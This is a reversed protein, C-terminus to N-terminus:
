PALNDALLMVKLYHQIKISKRDKEEAGVKRQAQYEEHSLSTSFVYYHNEVQETQGPSLVTRHKRTVTKKGKEREESM